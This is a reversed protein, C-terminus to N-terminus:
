SEQPPLEEPIEIAKPQFSTAPAIGGIQVLQPQAPESAAPGMAAEHQRRAM